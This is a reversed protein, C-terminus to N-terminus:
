PIKRLWTTDLLASFLLSLLGFGILYPYLSLRKYRDPQQDKSLNGFSTPIKSTELKDIEKYINALSMGQVMLFYKGGTIEAVQQMQHREPAFEQAAMAPDINVIYIRVHQQAAFQAAQLPNMSRLPNNADLPNPSDFGDTVLIIISSKIDYPPLKGQVLEEAYHRTAAIISATKYLAYGIATGDQSKDTVVHIKDLDRIITQHDLTLPDIVQATRAFAVLGILDNKRGEVFMKTIRQLLQEKPIHIFQNDESLTDIASAMSGSRDAVIYIAIGRTPPQSSASDREIQFHPDIFALLFLVLASWLLNRPLRYLFNKHASQKADLIDLDSFLLSPKAFHGHWKALLPLLFVFLIALLLAFPDIEFYINNM